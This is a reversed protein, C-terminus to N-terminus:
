RGPRQTPPPPAPVALSCQFPWWAGSRKRLGAGGRPRAEKLSRESIAFRLAEEVEGAAAAAAAEPVRIARRRRTWSTMVGAGGGAGANLEARDLM